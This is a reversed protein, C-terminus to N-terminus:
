KPYCQREPEETDLSKELQEWAADLERKRQMRAEALKVEDPTTPTIVGLEVLAKRLEPTLEDKM